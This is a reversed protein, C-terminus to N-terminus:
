FEQTQGRRDLEEALASAGVTTSLGGIGYKRLIKVLDDNVLVYNSSGEGVGRSNRDLYRIGSIGREALMQAAVRDNRSAADGANQATAIAQTIQSETAEPFITQLFAADDGSNMAVNVMPDFGAAKKYLEQGTLAGANPGFMASAAQVAEPQESLPRDWDLFTNPDANIGVEYMSGPNAEVAGRAKWDDLQGLVEEWGARKSFSRDVNTFHDIHERANAIAQDIDWNAAGLVSHAPSETGYTKTGDVAASRGALDNRYSRAV